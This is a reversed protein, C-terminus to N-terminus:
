LINYYHKRSPSNTPQTHAYGLWLSAASQGIVLIIVDKFTDLIWYEINQLIKLLSINVHIACNGLITIRLIFISVYFTM